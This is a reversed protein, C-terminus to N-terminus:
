KPCGLSSVPLSTAPQSKTLSSPPQAGTPVFWVEVRRMNAATSSGASVSPGCFGPEFPVGNQDAGTASVLVQSQPVSLCVGTGATIVAAANLARQQDLNAATEDSSSHGVLVVTGTPDRQVYSRLEELLIRKGCNNVRASNDPFLVDPLRIAAATPKRVCAVTTTATGVGRNDAASATITVSKRQEATNAPDFQVGTCDFQDGQVTGESASFTPAKIPGGCQGQFSASLTSKEGVQIEAPNAQVTGTPPVYERVTITTDATTPNLNPGDVKLSINYTGPQQDAGGFSFSPGQSVQQGNVSWVYNLHNKGGGSISPTVQATEGACIEKQSPSLTLTLNQKPCAATALVKSGDWCTKTAPQPPPAAAAHEGGFMFAVGASYRLNNQVDDGFTRINKLHTRYYDVAAPRVYFRRSIKVDVGGGVAMAFATQDTHIRSTIPQDPVTVAGGLNGVIIIQPISAAFGDIRSSAARYVGGFVAQAYPTFRSWRRLSVRPGAMFNIATNDIQFGSFNGNHVAGVDLVGSIWRNLNYIFQGSGGNQSYSPVTDGSKARVYTYGLFTEAKPVEEAAATWVLWAAAGIVTVCKKM